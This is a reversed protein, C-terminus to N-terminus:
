AVDQPHIFHAVREVLCVPGARGGAVALGRLHVGRLDLGLFVGAVILAALLAIWLSAGEKTKIRIM